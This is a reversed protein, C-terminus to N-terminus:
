IVYICYYINYLINYLYLERNYSVMNSIIDRAHVDVTILATIINRHLPPLQTRVLAALKNLRQFLIKEFASLSDPVARDFKKCIIETVEICWMVQSITLVIQFM